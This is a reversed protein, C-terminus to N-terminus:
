RIPVGVGADNAIREIEDIGTAEALLVSTTPEAAAGASAVEAMGSASDLAQEVVSPDQQDGEPAILEYERAASRLGDLDDPDGDWKDRFLKGAGTSPIGLQNMASERKLQSVEGRLKKAEAAEQRLQKIWDADESPEQPTDDPNPETM